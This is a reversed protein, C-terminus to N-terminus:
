IIFTHFALDVVVLFGRVKILANSAETIKDTTKIYVM